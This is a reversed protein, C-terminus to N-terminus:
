AGGGTSDRPDLPRAARLAAIVASPDFRLTKQGIRLCPIRGARTWIRITATSVGLHSALDRTTVLPGSEGINRGGPPVSRPTNM